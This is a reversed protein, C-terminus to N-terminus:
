IRELATRAEAIFLAIRDPDKRGPQLEVGSAVDVADPQVAAIAGAVNEPTLGGALILPLEALISRDRAILTWDALQGSGGFDHAADADVLVADPLRGLKRCEQLYSALPALGDRGCRVARVIPLNSPLEDLLAPPEEGHLQIADLGVHGVIEAVEDPNHNVFVGVRMVGAPLSAAIEVATERDVCRRSKSFFNLGVADAGCEAAVVADQINTIGCIKIRFM